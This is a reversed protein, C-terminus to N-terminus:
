IPLSAGVNLNSGVKLSSEVKGVNITSTKKSVEATSPAVSQVVSLNETVKNALVIQEESPNRGLKIPTDLDIVKCTNNKDLKMMLIKETSDEQRSSTPSLTSNPSTYDQKKSRRSKNEQVNM